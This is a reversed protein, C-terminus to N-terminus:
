VSPFVSGSSARCSLGVRWAPKSAPVPKGKGRGWSSDCLGERVERHGQQVTRQGCRQHCLSPVPLITCSGLGQGDRLHSRPGCQGATYDLPCRYPCLTPTSTAMKPFPYLVHKKGKMGLLALRAQAPLLPFAKIVQSLVPFWMM